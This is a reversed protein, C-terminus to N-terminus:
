NVRNSLYFHTNIKTFLSIQIKNSNHYIFHIYFDEKSVDTCCATSLIEGLMILNENRKRKKKIMVTMVNKKNYESNPTTKKEKVNLSFYDFTKENEIM